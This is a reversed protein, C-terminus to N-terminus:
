IQTTILVLIWAVDKARLTLGTKKEETM